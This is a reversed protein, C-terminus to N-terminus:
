YDSHTLNRSRLHMIWDSFTSDLGVGNWQIAAAENGVPQVPFAPLENELSELAFYEDTGILPMAELHEDNAAADTRSCQVSVFTVLKLWSLLSLVNM